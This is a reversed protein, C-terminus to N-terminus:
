DTETNQFFYDPADPGWSKLSYKKDLERYKWVSGEPVFDINCYYEVFSGWPDRIYYFFNSGSLHRGFGWGRNFGLAAMNQGGVGVEDVTKVEFSAHHFGKKGNNVFAIVHHDSGHPLHMFLVHGPSIDSIRFGIANLYFRAMAEFNKSFLFIHGLRLPDVQVTDQYPCAHLGVSQIQPGAQRTQRNRVYADPLILIVNGDPDCTWIGKSATDFLPTVSPAGFERIQRAIQDFDEPFAALAIYKLSKSTGGFLRIVDDGNGSRLLIESGSGEPKLGFSEYFHLSKDVDAVALGFHLLSHPAATKTNM